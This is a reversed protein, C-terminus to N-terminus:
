HGHTVGFSDSAPEVLRGAWAEADDVPMALPASRLVLLATEISVPRHAALSLALAFRGEAYPSQMIAIRRQDVQHWSAVDSMQESMVDATRRDPTM